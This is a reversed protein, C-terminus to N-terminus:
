SWMTSVHPKHSPNLMLRVRRGNAKAESIIEELRPLEAEPWTPDLRLRKLGALDYDQWGDGALRKGQAADLKAKAADRAYKAGGGTVGLPSSLAAELAKLLAALRERFAAAPATMAYAVNYAAELEEAELELVHVAQARTVERLDALKAVAEARARKGAEADTIGKTFYEAMGIRGDALAAKTLGAADLDARAEAEQDAEIKEFDAMMGALVAAAKEREIKARDRIKEQDRIVRNYHEESEAVDARIKVEEVKFRDLATEVNRM